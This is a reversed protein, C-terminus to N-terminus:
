SIFPKRKLNHCTPCVCVLTSWTGGGEELAYLCLCLFELDMWGGRVRVYVNYSNFDFRLIQIEVM